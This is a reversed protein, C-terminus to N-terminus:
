TARSIENLKTWRTTGQVVPLLFASLIAKVTAPTSILFTKLRAFCKAQAEQKQLDHRTVMASRM